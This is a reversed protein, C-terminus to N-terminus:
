SKSKFFSIRPSHKNLNGIKERRVILLISFLENAIIWTIPYLSTIITYRQLAFIALAFRFTNLEYTFLTETYPKNWSKRVTPIFGLMDISSLLIVSLVPQKAFLWLVIAVLALLFFITDVKAIDKKGDRFGFAFIIFCVLGAALTVYSGPGANENFQIAFALITIFGWLFWSYIHPKTKGNLTDKLYPAYGVFTLAVAIIGAIQKFELM